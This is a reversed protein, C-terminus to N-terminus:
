LFRRAEILKNLPCNRPYNDNDPRCHLDMNTPTLGSEHRSGKYKDTLVAGSCYPNITSYYAPIKEM